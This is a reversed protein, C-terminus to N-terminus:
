FIISKYHKSKGDVGGKPYPFPLQSEQICLYHKEALYCFIKSFFLVFSFSPGGGEPVYESTILM